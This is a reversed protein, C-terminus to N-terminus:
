TQSVVFAQRHFSSDTYEGGAGCEGAAGCSVAVGAEGGQNVAATGPVEIATHWTDSTQSVV